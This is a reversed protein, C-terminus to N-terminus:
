YAFELDVQTRHYGVRSADLDAKKQNNFHTVKAKVNDTIAYAAYYCQGQGDTGGGIFDSDSYAGVVADKDLKRSYAGVEWSGEAKAKNLVLGATFGTNREAVEPDVNKVVNGYVAIPLDMVKHSVEMFAEAIKYQYRYLTGATNTSNGFSKTNDVFLRQNKTDMYYYYSGGVTYKAGLLKGKLGAQAGYLMLDFNSSQELIWFGGGNVFASLGELLELSANGSVGDLTLDGDWILQNKGVNVFPNPVKGATLKLNEFLAKYEVYAMNLFFPKRNEYEGLTQNNSVPDLADGTALQFGLKWYDDLPAKVNLKAKIRQRDRETKKDERINEFRYRFDGDITLKEYWSDFDAAAPRAWGGLAVGALLMLVGAKKMGNKM